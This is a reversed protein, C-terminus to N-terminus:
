DTDKHLAAGELSQPLIQALAECQSVTLERRGHYVKDLLDTVTKRLCVVRWEEALAPSPYHLKYTSGYTKRPYVSFMAEKDGPGMFADAWKQGDSTKFFRKAVRTVAVERYTYMGHFGQGTIIMKTGVAPFEIAM